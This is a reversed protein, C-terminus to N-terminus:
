NSELLQETVTKGTNKNYAEINIYHIADNQSQTIDISWNDIEETFPLKIKKNIYLYQLENLHAKIKFNDNKITNFFLNNLVSSAVMFILVILVTAILTEILTSGKAKKLIVM